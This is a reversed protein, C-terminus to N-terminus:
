RRHCGCSLCRRGIIIAVTDIATTDIIIIIVFRIQVNRSQLLTRKAGIILIPGTVIGHFVISLHRRLWSRRPLEVVVIRIILIFLIIGHSNKLTQM